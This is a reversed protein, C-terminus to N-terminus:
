GIRATLHQETTKLMVNFSRTMFVEDDDGATLLNRRNRSGAILTLLKDRDPPMTNIVASPQLTLCAIFRCVSRFDNNKM